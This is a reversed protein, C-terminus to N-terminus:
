GARVPAEPWVGLTVKLDLRLTGRTVAMSVEDGPNGRGLWDSLEDMTRVPQGAIATIIDGNRIGGRQAPSNDSAEVVLIGYQEPLRRDRAIAPTIDNGAIGLWAHEVDEGALMRELYRSITASPVAYGIGGFGRQGSVAEIATNLGVVEGASNVLPGGSNGPNIAADTQIVDRIPRGTERLTRNLGSIVGVTVSREWGNPNGIAIALAGPKLKGSDGIPAVPLSGPVDMLQLVALDYQEDSGTVRARYFAKDSLGVEISGANRIVHYNTVVVGDPKVIVGSGIGRRQGSVSSVTITVVAPAVREYIRIVEREDFLAAKSAEGARSLPVDIRVPIATGSLRPALYWAYGLALGGGVTMSVTVILLAGLFRRLIRM